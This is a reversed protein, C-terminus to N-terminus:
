GERAEGGGAEREKPELGRAESPGARKQERVEEM